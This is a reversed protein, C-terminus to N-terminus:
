TLRSVDSAIHVTEPIYLFPDLGQQEYYSRMYFLLAKKNGINSAGEVHNHLRATHPNPIDLLEYKPRRRELLETLRYFETSKPTSRSALGLVKNLYARFM